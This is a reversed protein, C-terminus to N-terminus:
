PRPCCAKDSFSTTIPRGTSSQGSGKRNREFIGPGLDRVQEDYGELGVRGAGEPGFPAFAELVLRANGDSKAIWPAPTAVTAAAEARAFASAGFSVVTWSLLVVKKMVSMSM